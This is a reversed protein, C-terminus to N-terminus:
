QWTAAYKPRILYSFHCKIENNGFWLCKKWTDVFAGVDWRHLWPLLNSRAITNTTGRCQKCNLLQFWGNTALIM